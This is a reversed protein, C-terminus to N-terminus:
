VAISLFELSNLASSNIPPMAMANPQLDPSDCAERFWTEFQRTPVENLDGRRLPKGTQMPRLSSVDIGPHKTKESM